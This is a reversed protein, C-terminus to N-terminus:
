HVNNCRDLQVMTSGHNFWPPGPVIGRYLAFPFHTIFRSILSLIEGSSQMTIRLVVNLISNNHLNTKTLFTPSFKNYMVSAKQARTDESTEQFMRQPLKRSCEKLISAFRSWDASQKADIWQVMTSGRFDLSMGGNYFM